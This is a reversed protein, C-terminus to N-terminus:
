QTAEMTATRAATSRRPRAVLAMLAPALIVDALFALIITSGTLLGFYYLNNMESQTYILFGTTLVLSTFLMAQGTTALTQRVADRADGSQEFYRRFNHMFHITDDVALGLAVSGIMLTFADLPIGVWGMLGLTVIIPALNPIMSMLGIRVRGILLIMLPTIALFAILYTKAMSRVLADITRGMIGMLGTIEFPTDPGLIEGFGADLEEIFARYRIADVFPAKLTLRGHQFRSDVVDELDDSGSNEFLLLEQAVLRRDQPVRYFDPRNENLARHIEKLVDVVSVSKGVYLEGHRVGAAYQQVADIRNLLDPEHLGNSGGSDIVVELFMSGRLEENAVTNAERFPHGEPFWAIPDHSFRIQAAGLLCVALLGGTTLVVAGAHGTAFDGTRVLVRQSLGPRESEEPEPRMPFVAILAPLLVITFVLAVGVGIPGFTGLEAIPALEAASFSLLGGATTLSTMTVALGSHGLSRAIATEKDDGQRRRQYFIALIHVSAGVGVALLFSPLIQTPLKMPVGMLSMISLTSVLSLVVIALPLVVAAARRFLFGLFVAISVVALGTFRAMDRRMVKQLSEIMVPSGALYIQFDPAQYREVIETLATVIRSNEDGTLFPREAPPKAGEDDFGALANEEVGIQSYAETEIVLTAIKGDRSVLQDLYLPNAFVRERLTAVDEANEPWEEMLDEVILEDGEGRTNRANVLSTVDVVLPVEREVDEHFARLKELFALDFVEPPQILVLIMEDRGFQERFRDYTVRHPDDKRLFSESSTELRFHRMQPLLAGVVLLVGAIALFAHRYVWRGWASFGLEIRDRANM